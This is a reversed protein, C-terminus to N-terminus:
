KEIFKIQMILYDTRSIKLTKNTKKLFMESLKSLNRKLAKLKLLESYEIEKYIRLNFLKLIHNYCQICEKEM